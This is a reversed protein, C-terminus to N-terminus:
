LIQGQILKSAKGKTSLPVIGKGTITSYIMKPMEMSDTVKMWVSQKLNRALLLPIWTTWAWKEVCNQWIKKKEVTVIM